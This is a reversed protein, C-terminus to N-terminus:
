DRLSRWPQPVFVLKGNVLFFAEYAMGRPEGPAVFSVKFAPTAGGRLKPALGEWGGAFSKAAETRDKLDGATARVVLVETQGEKALLAPKPDASWMKDYAAALQDAADDTFIAGLEARSPRLGATFATADAGTALVSKAFLQQIANPDDTVQPASPSNQTGSPGESPSCACLLTLAVVSSIRRIM